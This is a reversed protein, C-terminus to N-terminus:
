WRRQGRLNKLHKCTLLGVVIGAIIPRDVLVLGISAPIGTIISMANKM